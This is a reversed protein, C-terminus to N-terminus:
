GWPPEKGRVKLWPLHAFNEPGYGTAMSIDTFGKEYLTKAIDEGKQDHGLESDIFIPTDKALTEIGGAFDGPNKYTLLKVGASRAAMKWTMHVLADDDILVAVKSSSPQFKISIPVFGALGKPIMRIGLRSSEEIIGKEEYRSTVLIVKPALNLERALSLGTEKYNLLEYDFLYLAKIAKEPSNKVWERLKDPESFHIVEINSEKVRASDFRGQWVQHISTDDDLVVVPMGAPLELVSVFGSPAEAEPLKITVTTGKDLASTIALSGGWSEVTTKAHFLGLGSGGTKGHTEGRQGLKALIEPPIGKGNDSVTVLISGDKSSLRLDVAGKDGLVEVANNVL